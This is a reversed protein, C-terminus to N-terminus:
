RREGAMYRQSSGLPLKRPFIQPGVTAADLGPLRSARRQQTTLTARPFAVKQPNGNM